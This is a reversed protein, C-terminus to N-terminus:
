GQPPPKLGPVWIFHLVNRATGWAKSCGGLRNKLFTFVTLLMGYTSLILTKIQGSVKSSIDVGTIPPPRLDNWGVSM